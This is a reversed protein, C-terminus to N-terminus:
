HGNAAVTSLRVEKESHGCIWFPWLNSFGENHCTDKYLLHLGKEFIDSITQKSLHSAHDISNLKLLPTQRVHMKKNEEMLFILNSVWFIHIIYNRSLNRIRHSMWEEIFCDCLVHDMAWTTRSMFTSDTHHIM